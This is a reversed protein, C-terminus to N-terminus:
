FLAIAQMKNFNEFATRARFTLSVLSVAVFAKITLRKAISLSLFIMIYGSIKRKPSGAFDQGTKEGTAKLRCWNAIKRMVKTKAMKQLKM